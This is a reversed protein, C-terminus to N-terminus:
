GPPLWWLPATIPDVRQWMAVIESSLEKVHYEHPVGVRLGAINGNLEKFTGPRAVIHADRIM